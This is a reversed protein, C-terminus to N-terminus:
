ESSAEKRFQTPTKGTIKKFVDNFTSKSNFGSEFAIELINRTETQSRLVSEVQKIRYSNIFMFFNQNFSENIIKSIRYSPIGTKESLLKLNISYDRWPEHERIYGVLKERLLEDKEKKEVAEKEDYIQEHILEEVQEDKMIEMEAFIEPQKLAFYGCIYIFITVGFNSFDLLYAPIINLKSFVYLATDVIWIILLSAVVVRLWSIRIKEIDSFYNKINKSYNIFLYMAIVTYSIGQILIVIDIILETKGRPLTIFLLKQEASKLYFQFFFLYSLLSPIFHAYHKLKFKKFSSTMALVYLYLLPGWLFSLPTIIGIIHPVKYHIDNAYLFAVFLAISVLTIKVSLIKSAFSNEKRLFLSVGLFLGQLAGLLLAFSYINLM